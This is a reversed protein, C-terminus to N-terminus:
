APRPQGSSTTARWAGWSGAIAHEGQFQRVPKLNDQRLACNGEHGPPVADLRGPAPQATADARIASRRTAALIRNSMM